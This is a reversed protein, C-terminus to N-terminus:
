RLGFDGKEAAAAGNQGAAEERGGPTNKDEVAGRDTEEGGEAEGKIGQARPEASGDQETLLLSLAVSLKGDHHAGFAVSTEMAVWGLGSFNELTM